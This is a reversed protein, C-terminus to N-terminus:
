QYSQGSSYHHLAASHRLPAGIPLDAHKLLSRSLSFLTQFSREAMGNEWPHEVNSFRQTVGLELKLWKEFTSNLFETGRDFQWTLLKNGTRAAVTLQIKKSVRYVDEATKRKLLAIIIEHSIEDVVTLDITSLIALDSHLRKGPRGKPHRKHEHGHNKARQEAQM